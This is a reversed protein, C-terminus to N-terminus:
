LYFRETEAWSQGHTRVFAKRAEKRGATYIERLGRDLYSLSQDDQTPNPPLVLAITEALDGVISIAKRSCVRPIGAREAAWEACSPQPLPANPAFRGSFLAITM